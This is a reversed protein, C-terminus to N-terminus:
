LPTNLPSTVVRDGGRGKQNMNTLINESFDVFLALESTPAGGETRSGARGKQYNYTGLGEMTFKMHGNGVYKKELLKEFM